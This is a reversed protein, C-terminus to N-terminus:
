RLKLRVSLLSGISLSSMKNKSFLKKEGKTLSIVKNNIILQWETYLLTYFTKQADHLFFFIHIDFEFKDTSQAQAARIRM